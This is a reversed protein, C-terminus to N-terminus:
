RDHVEIVRTTPAADGMAARQALREPDALFAALGARSGFRILHVETRDDTSHLRRELRGGHRGLLGLVADEYRHGADVADPALDVVAVLFLGEDPASM